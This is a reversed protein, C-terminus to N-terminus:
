QRNSEGVLAFVVGVVYNALGGSKDIAKTTLASAIAVGIVIATLTKRNM